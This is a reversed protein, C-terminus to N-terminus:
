EIGYFNCANRYTIDCFEEATIGLLEGCKEATFKIYDSRNTEGRHPVPTLYPCDTEVLIRSTADPHLDRLNEVIEVIKRANKFTAVGNVSIYYGLKMVEKAMELSGSFSHVVGVVDPFEKMIELVDGHAERDHIIVPAGLKQALAMQARFCKKQEEKEEPTWYYDLGIEGIAVVKKNQTYMQEIQRLWDPNQMDRVADSPHVGVSAYFNDYQESLNVSMKSSALSAGINCVKEVGNSTVEKIIEDRNEDFRSDDYHAHSDFIRM